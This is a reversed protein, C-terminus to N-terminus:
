GSNSPMGYNKPRSRLIGVVQEYANTLLKLGSASIDFQKGAFSFTDNRLNGFDSLNKKNIRTEIHELINRADNFPKFKPKLIQWLNNLKSDGDTEALCKLLNQVKEYCIFYFHIDLFLTEMLTRDVSNFQGLLARNDAQIRNWQIIAGNVYKELTLLAVSAKLSNAKWIIDLTEDYMM